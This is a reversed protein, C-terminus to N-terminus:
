QSVTQIKTQTLTNPKPINRNPDNPNKSVNVHPGANWAESMTTSYCRDGVVTKGGGLDEM